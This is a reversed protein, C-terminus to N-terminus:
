WDRILTTMETPPDHSLDWDKTRGDFDFSRLFLGSASICIRHVSGAHGHLVWLPEWRNAAVNVFVRILNDRAGVFLRLPEDNQPSLCLSDISCGIPAFLEQVKRCTSLNWCFVQNAESM